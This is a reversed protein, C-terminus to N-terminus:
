RSRALRLSISTDQDARPIAAKTDLLFERSGERRLMSAIFEYGFGAIVSVRFVGSEDTLLEALTSYGNRRAVSVRAGSAPRGDEGIVTGQVLVARDLAALRVRGAQVRDVHGRVEIPYETSLDPGAYLRPPGGSAGVVYRARQVDRFEFRGDAGSMTRKELAPVPGPVTRLFLPFFPIPKGSSDEVIGMVRGDDRAIASVSACARYDPLWVSTNGAVVLGNVSGFAVEYHRHWDAQISFRGERDTRTEATTLGNTIRVPVNEVPVRTLRGDASSTDFSHYVVQGIVRSGNKKEDPLRLYALDEQAAHLPKAGNCKTVVWGAGSPRHSGYILYAEGERLDPDCTNGQLHLDIEPSDAGRFAETVSFRVRRPGWPESARDPLIATVRGAFVLPTNWVAECPPGLYECAGCVELSGSPILSALWFALSLWFTRGMSM